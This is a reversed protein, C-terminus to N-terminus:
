VTAPETFPARGDRERGAGEVLSRIARQLDVRTFPKALVLFDSHLLEAHGPYGTAVLVKLGPRAAVARKALEIGNIGGPMMIDTFLIDIFDGATLLALAEAGNRALLISHGLDHLIAVSTKRVEADDEVVLITAPRGLQQLGALADSERAIPEASRPLLISVRTGRGVESDIAISGACQQVFGYVQSLGLGTGKGIEKTTFFPEYVRALTEPTMGCGTDEIRLEIYAGPGVRRAAVGDPPLSVEDTSLKLTGGNPMADRSNVILNLVAAEFEGVDIRVPCLEASLTLQFQVNAPLSHEILVRARQLVFNMSVTKPNLMNRRSFALLQRTLSTARDTAYRIAALMRRIANLDHRREALELNGSIITLLNNFDHAISGTLQGVAELRQAQMLSAEARERKKIEQGLKRTTHSLTEVALAEHKARKLAFWATLFLCCSVTLTLAAAKYITQLWTETIARQDVGYVAYVPFGRVRM